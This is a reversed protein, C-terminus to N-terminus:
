CDVGAFQAEALLATDYASDIGVRGQIAAPRLDTTGPLDLGVGACCDRGRARALALRTQRTFRWALAALRRSM